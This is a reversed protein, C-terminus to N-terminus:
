LSKISSYITDVIHQQIDFSPIEIEVESFHKPNARFVKMGYTFQVLVDSFAQSEFYYQLYQSIVLDTKLKLIHTEMGGIFPTNDPNIILVSKGLDDYNESTLNMVIDGHNLHQNQNVREKCSIKIIKSLEKNIDVHTSYIKYIDGYHLYPIEGKISTRDRPIQVGRYTDFIDKLKM